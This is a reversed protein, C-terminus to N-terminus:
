VRQGPLAACLEHLGPGCASPCVLTVLLMMLFARLGGLNHSLAVRDWGPFCTGLEGQTRRLHEAAKGRLRFLPQKVGDATCLRTCSPTSTIPSVGSPFRDALVVQASMNRWNTTAGLGTFTAQTMEQWGTKVRFGRPTWRRRTTGVSPSRKRSPTGDRQARQASVCDM